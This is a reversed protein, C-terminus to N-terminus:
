PLAENPETQLTSRPFNRSRQVSEFYVNVGDGISGQMVSLPSSCPVDIKNIEFIKLPLQKKVLRAAVAVGYRELGLARSHLYECCVQVLCMRFM